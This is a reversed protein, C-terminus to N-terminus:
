TKLCAPQSVSVAYVLMMGSRISYDSDPATQNPNVSNAM